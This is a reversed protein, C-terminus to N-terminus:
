QTNSNESAPLNLPVGSKPPGVLRYVSGSYTTVLDGNIATLYSSQVWEGDRFRQRIDGHLNGGVIVKNGITYHDWNRFEGTVVM